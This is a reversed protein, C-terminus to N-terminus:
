QLHLLKIMLHLCIYADATVFAASHKRSEKLLQSLLALKLPLLYITTLIVVYPVYAGPVVQSVRVRGFRSYRLPKSVTSIIGMLCLFAGAHVCPRPSGRWPRRTEVTEDLISFRLCLKTCYRLWTAYRHRSLVHSDLLVRPKRATSM